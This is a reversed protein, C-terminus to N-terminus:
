RAQKRMCCGKNCSQSREKLRRSVVRRYDELYTLRAAPNRKKSATGEASRTSRRRQVLPERYPFTIHFLRRGVEWVVAPNGDTREAAMDHWGVQFASEKSSRRPRPARRLRFAAENLWDALTELWGKHLEPETTGAARFVSRRMEDPMPHDRSCEGLPAMIRLARAMERCQVALATIRGVGEATQFTSLIEDAATRRHNLYFVYLEAPCFTMERTEPDGRGTDERFARAARLVDVLSERNDSTDDIKARFEAATLAGERRKENVRELMLVLDVGAPLGGRMMQALHPRSEVFAQEEREVWDRRDIEGPPDSRLLEARLLEAPMESLRRSLEVDTTFFPRKPPKPKKRPM